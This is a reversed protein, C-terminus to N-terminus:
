RKTANSVTPSATPTTCSRPTTPSALASMTSRLLTTDKGAVELLLLEEELKTLRYHPLELWSVCEWGGASVVKTVNWQERSNAM